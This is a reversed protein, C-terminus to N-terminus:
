VIIGSRKGVQGLLSFKLFLYLMAVRGGTHYVRFFAARDLKGKGL